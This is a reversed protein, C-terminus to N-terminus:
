AGGRLRELNGHEPSSKVSEIEGAIERGRMRLRALGSELEAARARLQEASRGLRKIRGIDGLAHEAAKATIDRAIVIALLAGYDDAAGDLISEIRGVYKEAFTDMVRMERYLVENIRKIMRGTAEGLALADDPTEVAPLAARAERRVISVIQRKGRDVVARQRSDEGEAGLDDGELDGILESLMKLRSEMSERLSVAGAVLARDHIEAMDEFMAPVDSVAASSLDIRGAGGGGESGGDNRPPRDARRAPAAPGGQRRRRPRREGGGAGKEGAAAAVEVAAAAAAM